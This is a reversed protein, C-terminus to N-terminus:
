GEVFSLEDYPLDIQKKFVFIGRIDDIIFGILFDIRFLM